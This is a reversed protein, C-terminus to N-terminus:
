SSLHQYAAWLPIPEESSHDQCYCLLSPVFHQYQLWFTRDLHVPVVPYTPSDQPTRNECAITYSMTARTTQYRWQSKGSITVPVQSSSNHCNNTGDKCNTPPNRYVGVVDAFTTHLFTNMDKCRETYSNIVQMADDCQSHNNIHQINFWQFPTPPQCSALLLVLGLLLLLCLQFELQMLGM